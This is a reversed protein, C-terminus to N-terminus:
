GETTFLEELLATLETNEPLDLYLRRAARAMTLSQDLCDIATRVVHNGEVRNPLKNLELIWQIIRPEEILTLM